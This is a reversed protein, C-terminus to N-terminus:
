AASTDEHRRHSRTKDRHGDEERTIDGDAIRRKTFRDDPWEAGGEKPFGGAHPHKLLRRMADNAPAVRVTKQAKSAERMKELRENMRLGRLSAKSVAM